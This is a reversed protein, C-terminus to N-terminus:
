GVLKRGAVVVELVRMDDDLMVFDARKGVSLEGRDTLGMYAAPNASLLRSAQELPVNCELANRLAQDLTLISGALTGDPLRASGNQVTVTQGGLESQGDPLGSARISDTIFTLHDPKAALASLFSVPHVHQLDFILEAYTTKDALAAGVIGPNRGTMGGMANFLHTFGAQGGHTRITQILDQTQKTSACTHGISVRINHQSFIRAANHAGQIEPALTVLKVINLNLLVELKDPDPTQANPPQAGLRNPSIFPGELHAGPIDPLTPTHQQTEQLTKVSKLANIINPWPNTITTPYLTTTGHQLHFHALTQIGNEGDMTDGGGGGHVHTDIFGPLIYPHHKNNTVPTITNIHSDYTISAHTVGHPTILRGSRQQTM